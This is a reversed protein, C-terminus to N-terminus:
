SLHREEQITIFTDRWWSSTEQYVLTTRVLRLDRINLSGQICPLPSYEPLDGAALFVGPYSPIMGGSSIGSEICLQQIMNFYSSDELPLYWCTEVYTPRSSLILKESPAPLYHIYQLPIFPQTSSRWGIPIMPPLALSSVCGKTKFLEKKYATLTTQMSQSLTLAYLNLKM